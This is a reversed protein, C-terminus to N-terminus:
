GVKEPGTLGAIDNDDFTYALPKGYAAEYAAVKLAYDKKSMEMSNERPTKAPDPYIVDLVHLIYKVKHFKEDDMEELDRMEVFCSIVPVDAKAAMYYFGRQPPRPKRYNFWMEQEPYILVIEDRNFCEGMIAALDRSMYHPNDYLPIIDAYNLLFGLFGPMALNSAKSVTNVRKRLKKAMLRLPTSDAPSFHNSTMIAGGKIGKLKEIGVIETNGNLMRTIVSVLRRAWFTKFKFSTSKRRQLYGDVIKKTEEPSLEPDDLEVTVHFDGNEVSTKINEIVADRKNGFIM